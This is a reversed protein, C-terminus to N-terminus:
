AGRLQVRRNEIAHPDRGPLPEQEGLGVAELRSADIGHGWVLYRKVAQARRQSLALNYDDAGAADTHGEIVVRRGPDLLKIGEALADLQARARPLIESSDFSFQVPLALSSPAVQGGGSPVHAVREVRPRETRAPVDLLRLGRTRISEGKEDTYPAAPVVPTGGLIRAVECADVMDDARYLLVEQSLVAQSFAAALLLAILTKQNM